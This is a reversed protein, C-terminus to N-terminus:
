NCNYIEIRNQLIKCHNDIENTLFNIMSQGTKDKFKEQLEQYYNLAQEYCNSNEKLHEQTWLEAPIYEVRLYVKYEITPIEFGGCDAILVKKILKRELFFHIKFDNKKYIKHELEKDDKESEDLKNIMKESKSKLRKLKFYELYDSFYTKINFKSTEESESKKLDRSLKKMAAMAHEKEMYKLEEEKILFASFLDDDSEKKKKKM